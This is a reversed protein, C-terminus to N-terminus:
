GLQPAIPAHIADSAAPMSTVQSPPMSSDPISVTMTPRATNPDGIVM